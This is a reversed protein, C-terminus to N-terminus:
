EVGEDAEAWEGGLEEVRARCEAETAFVEVNLRGVTARSGVEIYGYSVPEWAVYWVPGTDATPRIEFKRDGPIIADQIM